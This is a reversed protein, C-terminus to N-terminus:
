VLRLGGPLDLLGRGEVDGLLARAQAQVGGWCVHDEKVWLSGFSEM